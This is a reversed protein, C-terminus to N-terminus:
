RSADSSNNIVPIRGGGILATRFPFGHRWRVAQGTVSVALREASDIMAVLSADDTM